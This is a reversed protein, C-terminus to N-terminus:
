LKVHGEISALSKSMRYVSSQKALAKKETVRKNYTTQHKSVSAMTAKMYKINHLSSDHSWM